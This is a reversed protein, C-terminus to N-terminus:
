LAANKQGVVGVHARAAVADCGGGRGTDVGSGWHGHSVGQSRSPLRLPSGPGGGERHGLNQGGGVGGMGGMGWILASQGWIQRGRLRLKGM